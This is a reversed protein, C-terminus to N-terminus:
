SLSYVIILKQKNSPHIYIDVTPHGNGMFAGIEYCTHRNIFGAKHNNQRAMLCHLIERKDRQEGQALESRVALRTLQAQSLSACVSIRSQEIM